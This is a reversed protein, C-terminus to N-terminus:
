GEIKKRERGVKGGKGGPAMGVDEHAHLFGFVDMAKVGCKVEKKVQVAQERM